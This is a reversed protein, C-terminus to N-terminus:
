CLLYLMVEFDTNEEETGMYSSCPRSISSQSDISAQNLQYQLFELKYRMSELQRRTEFYYLPLSNEGYDTIPSISCPSFNSVSRCKYKESSYQASRLSLVKDRYNRQNFKNQPKSFSVEVLTNQYFSILCMVIRLCHMHSYKLKELLLEADERTNLHIYAFDKYKYIKEVNECNILQYMRKTFHQSNETVDLNRIFLIKIENSSDDYDNEMVPISWDVLLKYGFLILKNQFKSRFYAAEEHTRFELFAFGRNQSQQGYKRYMIVDVINTVGYCSSLEKWVDDKTMYISIGGLFIRCNDLSM